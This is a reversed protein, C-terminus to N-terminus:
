LAAYDALLLERLSYWRSRIDSALLQFGEIWYRGGGLSHGHSPDFCALSSCAQDMYIGDVGLKQVAQEVLRAYKNRWFSTGMCMSACPLKTFTNYVEPHITGDAGKVAFRGAGESKWSDTTMGWLRQNMYVIARVNEQHARVLANTFAEVGERPPLYEPFGTDYACGHWWHWFARVPLRLEKQLAIAPELVNTSRGRNWVWMGTQQVWEPTLGSNLRSERAWVQNTAWSRYRDAATFWDGQFAGIIAQYPLRYTNVERNEPLHVMEYNLQGESAGWIAFSKRYSATDDCSFYLGPGGKRYYALCQLSTHGPYDWEMRGETGAVGGLLARPNRALQGMWVPAALYEDAQPHIAPFRPFHVAELDLGQLNEVVINWRSMATGPDLRTEVVVKLQPLGQSGFDTWSLRASHRGPVPELHFEKAQSSTLEFEKGDRHVNLKWLGIPITHDAVHNWHAKRDTFQLLSGDSQSLGVQLLKNELFYLGPKAMAPIGLLLAGSIVGARRIALGLDTLM